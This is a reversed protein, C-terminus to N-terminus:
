HPSVRKPDVLKYGVGVVTQILRPRSPEDEIKHRLNAIHRDLTRDYVDDDASIRDLIQERTLACGEHVALTSLIRFETPTLEVPSGHRRVEHASSDIEIPGVRLVDRRGPSRGENATSRRLVAKVRAVVERPSFPKTVYDDAGLELGVIRDVEHVRSTLMIVPVNSEARITRLVETGSLRPLNLDLLVLDPQTERALAIAAQGDSAEVVRFGEDAFYSRLVDVLAAEDDVVLIVRNETVADPLVAM